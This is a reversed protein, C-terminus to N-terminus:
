AGTCGWFIIGSRRKATLILTSGPCEGFVGSDPM